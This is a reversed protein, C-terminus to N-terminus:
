RSEHLDHILKESKSLTSHNESDRFFDQQAIKSQVIGLEPPPSTMAMGLDSDKTIDSPSRYGGFGNVPPRSLRCDNAALSGIVKHYPM